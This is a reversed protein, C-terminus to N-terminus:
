KIQLGFYDDFEERIISEIKAVDSDSLMEFMKRKTSSLEGNGQVVLRVLLSLKPQPLDLWAELRAKARDYAQLYRVEHALDEEVCQRICTLIFECIPTADFSAYLWIPQPSKIHITQSDDDLAYDLLATRPQSYSKLLRSYTELSGLMRASLPLVVGPPTYGAQRLIHHLLFRHLRGNGDLLPHVYVLGFAACTAAIAPDITNEAGLRALKAVGAMMPEIQTPAPPIFDAINRLRGSRSLWNQIQRYSAEAFHGSIISNQWSCLQDETLPEPEGALELLKRFKEARTATPVEKEISFTSRTESLYLYDIARALVEPDLGSVAQSVRERLNSTLLERMTDTLRVMPCFARTGLLNNIIGFQTDSEEPGTVYEDADLVRIRPAGAPLAFDFQAGALWKALYAALRSYGSSPADRLWAQIEALVETHEFLAALVTLNLRERKLAFILQDRLGPKEAYRNRPIEIRETGALVTYKTLGSKPSLWSTQDLPPVKLAFSEILFQYGLPRM